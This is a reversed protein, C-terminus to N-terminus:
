LCVVAHGQGDVGTHELLKERTIDYSNVLQPMNSTGAM